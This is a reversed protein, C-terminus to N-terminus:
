TQSTQNRRRWDSLLTQKSETSLDSGLSIYSIESDKGFPGKAYFEGDKQNRAIVICEKDAGMIEITELGPNDKEFQEADLMRSRKKSKFNIPM